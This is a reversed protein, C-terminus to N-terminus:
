IQTCHASDGQCHASQANIKGKKKKKKKEKKRIKQGKQISISM